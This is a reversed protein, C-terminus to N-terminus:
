KENSILFGFGDFLKKQSLLSVATKILLQNIIYKKDTTNIPVNYGIKKSTILLSFIETPAGNIM